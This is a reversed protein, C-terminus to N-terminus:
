ENTSSDFSLVSFLCFVVTLVTAFYLV